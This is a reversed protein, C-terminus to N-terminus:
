KLLNPPQGHFCSVITRWIVCISGVNRLRNIKPVIDKKERISNCYPTNKVESFFEEESESSIKVYFNGM